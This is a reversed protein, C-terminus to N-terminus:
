ATTFCAKGGMKETKAIKERIKENSAMTKQIKEIRSSARVCRHFDDSAHEKENKVTIQVV